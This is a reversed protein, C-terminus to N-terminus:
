HVMMAAPFKPPDLRPLTVKDENTIISMSGDAEPRITAGFHAAVQVAGNHQALKVMGELDPKLEEFLKGTIQQVALVCAIDFLHSDSMTEVDFYPRFSRPVPNAKMAARMLAISKRRARITKWQQDLTVNKKKGRM